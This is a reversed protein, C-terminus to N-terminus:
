GLKALGIVFLILLVDAARRDGSKTARDYIAAVEADDASINGFLEVLRRPLAPEIGAVWAVPDYHEGQSRRRRLKRGLWTVGRKYQVQLASAGIPVGTNSDPYRALGGHLRKLAALPFKPSLKDEARVQLLLDIFPPYALPCITSVRDNWFGLSLSTVKGLFEELYLAQCVEATRLRKGLRESSEVLALCPDDPLPVGLCHEVARRRSLYRDVNGQSLQRALPGAAMGALKPDYAFSHMDGVKYLEGFAGHMMRVGLPVRERLWRAEAESSLSMGATTATNAEILKPYERIFAANLPIIHHEVQCMMAMAHAYDVARNSAVGASWATVDKGIALMCALILRSDIGGSLTVGCVDSGHTALSCGELLLEELRTQVDALPIKANELLALKDWTCSRSVECSGLDIDLRSAPGIRSVSRWHTKEGLPQNFALMEALAQHNDARQGSDDLLDRPRDGLRLRTGSEGIYFPYLGYRDTIVSLRLDRQSHLLIVFRGFLSGFDSTASIERANAGVVDGLLSIRDGNGLDHWVLSESTHISVQPSIAFASDLLTTM